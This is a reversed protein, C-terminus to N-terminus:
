RNRVLWMVVAWLLPEWELFSAKADALSSWSQIEQRVAVYIEEPTMHALPSNLLAQRVTERHVEMQEGVSLVNPNHTNIVANIATVNSGDPVTLRVGQQNGELYLLCKHDEGEGVIWEPFTALLEDMLLSQKFTGAYTLIM